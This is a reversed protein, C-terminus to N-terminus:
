VLSMIYLTLLLGIITLLYRAIIRAVSSLMNTKAEFMLM